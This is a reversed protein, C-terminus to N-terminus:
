KGLKNIQESLNLKTKLQPFLSILKKNDLYMNLPKNIISKKNVFKIPILYKKNLNKLRALKLAFNFKSIKQNSSVNFIGNVDKDILKYIIKSM